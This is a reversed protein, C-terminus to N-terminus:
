GESQTPRIRSEIFGPAPHGSDELDDLVADVDYPINRLDISVTDGEFSFIGYQAYGPNDVSLGVSGVNILHWRGISRNMQIHTHGGIGLRGERDLLYDVAEEDPTDPKLMSEDNGPVAHYGIVAGYGEVEHWLERERISKLFEYDEWSLQALNWNIITDRDQVFRVFGTLEDEEKVSPMPFRTGDVLYRDTNGGITKFTKGEDAETLAKIRRICAAPQSGFAALDGLCWTLDAGGQAHLDDLVAELATLNGHIDSLVALRM